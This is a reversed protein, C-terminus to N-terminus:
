FGFCGGGYRRGFMDARPHIRGTRYASPGFVTPIHIQERSDDENRSSHRKEKTFLNLYLVINKYSLANGEIDNMSIEIDKGLSVPERESFKCNRSDISSLFGRVEKDSVKAEGKRVIADVVYGEVLKDFYKGFTEARDFVEAIFTKKKGDLVAVMGVQRELPSFRKKYEKIEKDKKEYLENLDSTRSNIGASNLYFSVGNWVDHQSHASACLFAAKKGASFGYKKGFHPSVGCGEVHSPVPELDPERERSHRPEEESYHWRGQQVCRVPIKGKFGRELYINRVIMRNQMGGLIYEGNIMLVEKETDNRVGLEPVSGSETIKLGDKLAESLTLYSLNSDSGILPAIALGKYSQIKDVALSDVFDVINRM